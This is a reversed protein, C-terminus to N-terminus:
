NILAALDGTLCSVIQLRHSPFSQLHLSAAHGMGLRSLNDPDPSAGRSSKLQEEAAIGRNVGKTSLQQLLCGSKCCLVAGRHASLESFRM